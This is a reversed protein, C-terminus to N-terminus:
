SVSIFNRKFSPIVFTDKLDLYFVICMLLRFNGKAEVELSNGDGVYIYREVNNPNQYNLCGKIMSVSINATEGSNLWWVNRHVSALNVESCVLGHSMHISHDWQEWNKRQGSTSSESPPPPQEIKLALYFEMCGLVIEINESCEKFNTRYLVQVMNYKCIDFCNCNSFFSLNFGIFISM